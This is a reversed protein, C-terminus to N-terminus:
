EKGIYKPLNKMYIHTDILNTYNSQVIMHIYIM